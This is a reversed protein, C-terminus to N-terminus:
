IREIHDISHKFFVKIKVLNLLFVARCQIELPFGQTAISIFASKQKLTQEELILSDKQHPTENHIFSRFIVRGFHVHIMSFTQLNHKIEAIVFMM